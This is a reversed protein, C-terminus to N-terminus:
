FSGGLNNYLHGNSHVVAMPEGSASLKSTTCNAHESLGDIWIMKRTM